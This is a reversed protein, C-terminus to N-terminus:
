GPRLGYQDRKKMNEGLSYSAGFHFGSWSPSDYRITNDIRASRQSSLLMSGVGYQYFPDLTRLTETTLENVRGLRVAGWSEGKLGVNAAGDWDKGEQALTGDNLNFRRELEFTAKMGGGLDETGRFGIRNDVNSGMRTDSGNEKIFGTDVVGYIVVNSQANALGTMAGTIALAILPKKENQKGKLSIQLFGDFGKKRVDPYACFLSGAAIAKKVFITNRESEKAM